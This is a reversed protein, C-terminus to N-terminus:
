AVVAMSRRKYENTEENITYTSGGNGFAIKAHWESNGGDPDFVLVPNIDSGWNVPGDIIGLDGGIGFLANGFAIEFGSGTCM